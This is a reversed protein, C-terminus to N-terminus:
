YKSANEFVLEKWKPNAEYLMTDLVGSNLYYRKRTYESLQKSIPMTQGENKAIDDLSKVYSDINKIIDKQNSYKKSLKDLKNKAKNISSNIGIDNFVKYGVTTSTGYPIEGTTNIQKMLNTYSQDWSNGKDIRKKVKSVIKNAKKEAVSYDKSPNLPYPPGNEVGWKQGKIGHHMLYNSEYIM